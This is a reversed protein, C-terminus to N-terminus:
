DKLIVHSIDYTFYTWGDKKNCAYREANNRNKFLGEVGVFKGSEWRRVIYYTKNNM